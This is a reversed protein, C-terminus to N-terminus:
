PFPLSIAMGAIEFGFPCMMITVSVLSGCRHQERFSLALLEEVVAATLRGNLPCGVLDVKM